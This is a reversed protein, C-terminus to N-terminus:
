RQAERQRIATGLYNAGALFAAPKVRYLAALKLADTFLLRQSGAELTALRGPTVGLIRGVGARSLNAARRAAAVAHGVAIDQETTMRERRLDHRRERRRYTVSPAADM